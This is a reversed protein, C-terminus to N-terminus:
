APSGRAVAEWRIVKYKNKTFRELELCVSALGSTESESPTMRSMSSLVFTLHGPGLAWCQMGARSDM